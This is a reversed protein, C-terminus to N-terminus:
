KVLRIPKFLSPDKSNTIGSGFEYITRKGDQNRNNVAISMGIVRNKSIDKHAIESWPIATEYLYGYKVSKVSARVTAKTALPENNLAVVTGNKHYLGGHFRIGQVGAPTLCFGYETDDYGYGQWKRTERDPDFAIQISDGKWMYDGGFPQSQFDDLVYVALYLSAADWKIYATAKERGSKDKLPLPPTNSWDSLHGALSPVTDAFSCDIPEGNGPEKCTIPKEPFADHLKGEGHAARKYADFAPKPQLDYTMLGFAQLSNPNAENTLWDNLTHLSAEEVCDMKELRLLVQEIVDAQEELSHSDKISHGWETLWFKKHSDGMFGLLEKTQDLWQWFIGEKLESVYPHLGVADFYKGGGNAYIQELFYTYGEGQLGSISVRADPDAKKIATYCAKLRKTYTVPDGGTRIEIPKGTYDRIVIPAPCGDDENGIEYYKIKGKYRLAAAECWKALDDLYKDDCPLVGFFDPYRSKVMEVTDNDLGTAWLPTSSVCAVIELGNEHYYNVRQDTRTWDYTGPTKEINLWSLGMRTNTAGVEKILNVLKINMEDKSWDKDADVPNWVVNIGYAMRNAKAPKAANAYANASSM